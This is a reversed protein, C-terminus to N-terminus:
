EGTLASLATAANWEHPISLATAFRHNTKLVTSLLYEKDVTASRAATENSPSLENENLNM